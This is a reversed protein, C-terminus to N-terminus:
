KNEEIVKMGFIFFRKKTDIFSDFHWQSVWSESLVSGSKTKHREIKIVFCKEVLGTRGNEM